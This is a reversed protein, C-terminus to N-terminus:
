HESKEIIKESNFNSCNRSLISCNLGFLPLRLMLKGSFPWNMCIKSSLQDFIPLLQLRTCQLVGFEVIWENLTALNKKACYVLVPFFAVFNLLHDRFACFQRLISLVGHFIVVDEM